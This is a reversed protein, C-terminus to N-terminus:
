AIGADALRKRLSQIEKVLMPVLKSYDVAMMEETEEPQYVADPVVAVLEQAIFGYSQHSGNSKWDYQRVQISDILSSASNADQINEKLRQDSTTGYVTLTGNYTISGVGTGQYSFDCFKTSTAQIDVGLGVASSATQAITIKGAASTTGVLLNGSADLTMAQTFTIANGATGSPANFWLHSGASQAYRTAVNTTSYIYNTGNFYNNAGIQMSTAGSNGVYCGANNFEMTKGFGSWASPTVGLGLNGSASVTLSPTTYTTGGLTTSPTLTWNGEAFQDIGIQWNRNVTFSRSTQMTFAPANGYVTLKADPSSTGIGLGTSTLRMGEASAIGFLINSEGRVALSSNAGGTILAKSDGIYGQTGGDASNSFQLFGNATTGSTLTLNAFSGDFTLASGSTVVKSGNLYAVGNATGGSLTPNASFSSTGTSTLTGAVSLTKGSGVNLGVSTGTGAAAFVADVSDLDTNIKTGWTDTSAGVEPKTLLLNTTTTDAM